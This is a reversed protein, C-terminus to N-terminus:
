EELVPQCVNRIGIGGLEEVESVRQIARDICDNGDCALAKDLLVGYIFTQVLACNSFTPIARLAEFDPESDPENLVLASILAALSADALGSSVVVEERNNGRRDDDRHKSGAFSLSAVGILFTVGMLRVFTKM